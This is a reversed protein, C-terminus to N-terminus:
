RMGVSGCTTGLTTSALCKSTTTLNQKDAHQGNRARVPNDIDSVLMANGGDMKLTAILPIEMAWDVVEHATDDEDREHSWPLHRTSPYKINARHEKWPPEELKEGWKDSNKAVGDPLPPDEVGVWRWFAQPPIVNQEALRHHQNCVSAGNDALYGGGSWLKREMIHHVESPGDPDDTVVEDCTPVVCTGSDREVCKQRFKLRSM